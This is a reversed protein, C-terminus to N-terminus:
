YVLNACFMHGVDLSPKGGQQPRCTYNILALHTENFDSSQDQLKPTKLPQSTDPIERQHGSKTLTPVEPKHFRKQNALHGQGKPAMIRLSCSPNKQWPELWTDDPWWILTSSLVDRWRWRRALILLEYWGDCMVCQQLLGPNRDNWTFKLKRSFYRIKGYKKQILGSSVLQRTQWIKGQKIAKLM